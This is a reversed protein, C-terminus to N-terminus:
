RRRIQRLGGAPTWTTLVLEEGDVEVLSVADIEVIFQSGEAGETPGEYVVHGRIRADGDRLDPDLPASHLEIRPDRELDRLKQSGVMMGLRLHERGIDVETGSLRPSGDPRVTGLVHHLNAAFRGRVIEALEPAAESFQHWSAGMRRGYRLALPTTM